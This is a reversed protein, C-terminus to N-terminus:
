YNAPGFRYNVGVRFIHDRIASDVKILPSGPPPSVNPINSALLDYSTHGLDMYLYELKASWNSNWLRTEVGGGVTWGTKTASSAGAAVVGGLDSRFFDGDSEVKGYAYGGTFYWLDNGTAWGIMGRATGFWNLKQRTEIGTAFCEFTCSSDKQATGQFDTEVGLVWSPMWQWKYGIQGGGLVGAPSLKTSSFNFVTPFPVFEGIETPNRGVGYGVNGGVYFGTWNDTVPAAAAPAKYAQRPLDAASAAASIVCFAVSVLFPKKM